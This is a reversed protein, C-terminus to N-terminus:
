RRTRFWRAAREGMWVARDGEATVTRVENAHVEGSRLATQESLYRLVTAVIATVPVALFAGAIGFLTGGATVALLVVAAHLQLSRGQLLPQLATSEIQQVLVVLAVVLLATGPGNSVLAVLAALVGAVVAGVIPVFGAFFTLVALAPALPVQLVLLGIGILVADVFSVVAQVRIYRGLTLWVRALLETLHTGITPGTQRRVWPLFRAGDKLFLFSLVVVLVFTVAASTVASVGSYVGAAIQETSRQLREVLQGTVEDLRQDDVRFPPGALWSRLEQLGGAASAGLAVAQTVTPRVVLTLVGVILALLGLVAAAAALVSPVRRREAWVVAPWLVSSFLLALMIPLVGVWIRGLLWMVAAVALGILLFRASWAATVRLGAAIVASRDM